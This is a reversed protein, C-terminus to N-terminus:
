HKGVRAHHELFHRLCLKLKLVQFHDGRRRADRMDDTIMTRIRKEGTRTQTLYSGLEVAIMEPVHEHQAIAEIEEETLGSLEICDQITLM